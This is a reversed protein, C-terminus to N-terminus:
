LYIYILLLLKTFKDMAVRELDLQPVDDDNDDDDM